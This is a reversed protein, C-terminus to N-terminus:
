KCGNQVYALLPNFDAATLYSAFEAGPFNDNHTSTVALLVNYPDGDKDKGEDASFNGIWAGGSSGTTFDTLPGWQVVINSSNYGIPIADSFFMPGSVQQIIAGGLISGPYGVRTIYIYKGKKDKQYNARWDLQYPMFGTQSTAVQMGGNPTTHGVLLMALDHQSAAFFAANQQARSMGKWATSRQDQTMTRWTPSLTYTSATAGCAINFESGTDDQYQLYFVGKTADPWPGTPSNGLDGLCHGATVLVSPAIFQATCTTIGNPPRAPDPMVLLGVWKLPAFSPNGTSAEPAPVDPWLEIDALRTIADRAKATSSPRAMRMTAQAGPLRGVSADAPQPGAMNAWIGEAGAPLALCLIAIYPIRM